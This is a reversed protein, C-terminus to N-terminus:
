ARTGPHQGDTQGRDPKHFPCPRLTFPHSGAPPKVKRFM